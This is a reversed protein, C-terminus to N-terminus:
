NENILIINSNHGMIEVCVTLVVPDALENLVEFDIFLVRDLGLQRVGILKGGTLHKRLLMCFMPPVAPNEPSNQTFHIRAGM